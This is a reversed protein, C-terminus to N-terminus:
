DAHKAQIQNRVASCRFVFSKNVEESVAPMMELTDSQCQSKMLLIARCLKRLVDAESNFQIATLM